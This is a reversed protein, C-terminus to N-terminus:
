QVSLKQKQTRFRCRIWKCLRPLGWRPLGVLFGLGWSIHIVAFVLPLVPLFRRGRRLSLWISVILNAALYCAPIILALVPYWPFLGASFALAIVFFPPALQRLRLSMPHLILTKVKWFGYRFYQQALRVLSSRVQYWCVILPSLFIIKVIDREYCPRQTSYKDRMVASGVRETCFHAPILLSRLRCSIPM